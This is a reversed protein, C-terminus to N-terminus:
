ILIKPHEIGDIGVYWTSEALFKRVMAPTLKGWVNGHYPNDNMPDYGVQLKEERFQNTTMVVSAIWKPTTVFAVPDINDELIPRELDISMGRYRDNSSSFAMSSLRKGGQVKPDNAIYEKSIRRIIKDPLLIDAHDHPQVIGDADRPPNSPLM